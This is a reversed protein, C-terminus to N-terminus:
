KEEKNKEVKHPENLLSAKGDEETGWFNRRM